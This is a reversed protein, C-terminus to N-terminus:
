GAGVVAEKLVRQFIPRAHSDIAARVEPAARRRKAMSDSVFEHPTGLPAKSYFRAAQQMAALEEASVTLNFHPAIIEWISEPMSEYSVIKGHSGDLNLIAECFATYFAAIYLEPALRRSGDMGLHTLFPNDQRAIYKYWLGPAPDELTSVAVDIPDRICFIWPTDPFARQLLGCFLVNWNALKLVYPRGAHRAFLLGLTRLSQVMHEPSCPHPPMLLDIFAQPRSYVVLGDLKKLVQSVLTSGCKSVHYIIGSPAVAQLDSTHEFKGLLAETTGGPSRAITDAVFPDMFALPDIDKFSVVFGRDDRKAGVPFAHTEQL